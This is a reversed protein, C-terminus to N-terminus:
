DSIHFTFNFPFTIVLLQVPCYVTSRICSLSYTGKYTWKETLTLRDHWGRIYKMQRSCQNLILLHTKLKIGIIGVVSDPFAVNQELKRTGHNNFPLYLCLNYRNGGPSLKIKNLCVNKFLTKSILYYRLLIKITCPLPKQLLIEYDLQKFNM